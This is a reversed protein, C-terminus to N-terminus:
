KPPLRVQPLEKEPIGELYKDRYVLKASHRKACSAILLDTLHIRTASKARLAVAVAGVAEDIPLPPGLFERYLELIKAADAKAYDSRQLFLQFEVWTVTSIAAKGGGPSLCHEVTEWGNEQLLHALLASTDLLHAFKM